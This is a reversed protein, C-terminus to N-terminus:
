RDTTIAQRQNSKQTALHEHVYACYFVIHAYKQVVLIMSSSLISLSLSLSLLKLSGKQRSIIQSQVCYNNNM